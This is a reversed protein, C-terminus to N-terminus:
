LFWGGADGAPARARLARRLAGPDDTFLGAVGAALLAAAAPPQNVTYALVPWGSTRAAAILDPLALRHEVNVSWAGLRSARELLAEPESNALPALALAPARARILVLLDQDFSSVLVNPPDEVAAVLAAAFRARPARLLKLDLNLPFTPPLAALVEELSPLPASDEALAAPLPVGRLQEFEVTEIELPSGAVRQLTFDHVVVLRGDATLQLDLEVM